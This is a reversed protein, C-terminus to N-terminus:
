KKWMSSISFKRKFKSTSQIWAIASDIKAAYETPPATFYELNTCLIRDFRFDYVFCSCFIFNLTHIKFLIKSVQNIDAGPVVMGHQQQQHQQQQLQQASPQQQGQQQQMFWGGGPM